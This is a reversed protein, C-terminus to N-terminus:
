SHGQKRTLMDFVSSTQWNLVEKRLCTLMLGKWEKFSGKAVKLKKSLSDVVQQMLRKTNLRSVIRQSNESDRAEKVLDKKTYVPRELGSQCTETYVFAM